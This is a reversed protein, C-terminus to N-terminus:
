EEERQLAALARKGESQANTLRKEISALARMEAHLDERVQVENPKTRIWRQVLTMQPAQIAAQFVEDNLLRDAESGIRVSEELKSKTEPTMNAM